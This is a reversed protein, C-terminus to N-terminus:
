FNFICKGTKICSNITASPGNVFRQKIQPTRVDVMRDKPVANLLAQLVENRDRWSSDMIRALGSTSADGFYDTYYNEGWIGIFGMQVVAIVDANQQLLPKLQEIHMLVIKKSADGYPPCIKYQDNCDGAHTKNTYAFRIVM